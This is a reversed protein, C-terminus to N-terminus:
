DGCSVDSPDLTQVALFGTGPPTIPGPTFVLIFSCFTVAIFTASLRGDVVLLLVHIFGEELCIM